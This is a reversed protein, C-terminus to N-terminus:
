SGPRPEPAAPAPASAGSRRRRGQLLVQSPDAALVVLDDGRDRGAVAVRARAASRICRPPLRSRSAWAARLRAQRRAQGISPSLMGSKTPPSRWAPSQASNASTVSAQATAGASSALIQPIAQHGDVGIEVPIGFGIGGVLAPGPAVLVAADIAAKHQEGLCRTIRAPERAHGAARRAEPRGPRRAPPIRDALLEVDVVDERTPHQKREGRPRAIRAIEGGGVPERPLEVAM